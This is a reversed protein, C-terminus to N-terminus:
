GHGASDICRPGTAAPEGRLFATPPPFAFDNGRHTSHLGPPPFAWSPRPASPVRFLNREDGCEGRPSLARFDLAGSSARTLGCARAGLALLAHVPRPFGTRSRALSLGRSPLGQVHNRPSVFGCPLHRLLGDLAHSVGLVSRLAPDPARRLSHVGDAPAAILSRFGLPPAERDSAALCGPLSAPRLGCYESPPSFSSPPHFRGSVSATSPPHVSVALGTPFTRPKTQPLPSVRIGRLGDAYLVGPLM